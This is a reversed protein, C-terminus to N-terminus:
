PSRNWRLSSGVAAFALLAGLAAFAVSIERDKRQLVVQKPLKAFVARLQDADEAKHYTAGTMGAVKILTPEDAVLFNRRGGGGGGGGGAGPPPGGGFGDGGIGDGGLQERSCVVSAPNTTGFGITYVRVHRDVAQQAAVLPTVGRTNAGDTLLVVIDPQYTGAAATAAAAVAAPDAAAPDGPNGASGAPGNGAGNGAADVSDSPKVDANTEAIADIAKLMAAGIATGRSTTLGDIAATLAKKDTTPPM